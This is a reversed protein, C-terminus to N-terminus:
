KGKTGRGKPKAKTATASKTAKRTRKAPTAGEMEAIDELSRSSGGRAESSRGPRSPQKKGTILRKFPTTPCRFDTACGTQSARIGIIQKYLICYIYAAMMTTQEKANPNIRKFNPLHCMLTLQRYTKGEMRELEEVTRIEVKVSPLQVQKIIDLFISKDTIKEELVQTSKAFNQQAECLTHVADNYDTLAAKTDGTSTYRPKQREEETEVYTVFDDDDLFRGTKDRICKFVQERDAQDFNDIYPNGLKLLENFLRTYAAEGDKVVTDLWKKGAAQYARVYKTPAPPEDEDPNIAAPQATEDTPAQTPDKTSAETPDEAPAKSTGPQPEAPAQDTHLKTSKPDPPTEEPPAEAGKTAQATKKGKSKSAGQKGEKPKQAADELVLPLDEETDVETDDRFQEKPVAKGRGTGTVTATVMGGPQHSAGGRVTQKTRLM